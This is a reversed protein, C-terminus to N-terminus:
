TKEIRKKITDALGWDHTNISDVLSKLLSTLLNRTENILVPNDVRECTIFYTDIIDIKRNLTYCSYIFTGVIGIWSLQFFGLIPIRLDNYSETSNTSTVSSNSSVDSIFSQNNNNENTNTSNLNLSVIKLYNNYHNPNEVIFILLLLVIVFYFTSVIKDIEYNIWSTSLIRFTSYRTVKFTRLILKTLRGFPDVIAIITGIIGIFILVPIYDTFPTNVPTINKHFFIIFISGTVSYTFPYDTIKILNEKINM